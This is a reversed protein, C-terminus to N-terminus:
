NFLCICAVNLLVISFLQVFSLVIEDSDVHDDDIPKVSRSHTTIMANVMM